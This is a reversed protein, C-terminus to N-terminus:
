ARLNFKGRSKLYYNLLKPYTSDNDLIYINRYGANQLWDILRQLCILRDRSNIFIPIQQYDEDKINLWSNWPFMTIDGKLWCRYIQDNGLLQHAAAKEGM